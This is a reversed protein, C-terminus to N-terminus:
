SNVIPGRGDSAFETGVGRYGIFRCSADFVPEGSVRFHQLKSDVSTRSLVFDLFPQRKAILELMAKLQVANWGASEVFPEAGPPIDKTAGLMGSVPLTTEMLRGSGDQEWHWDSALQTLQRYRAESEILAATRERVTQELIENYRALEKYLLRVELMNRIRTKVELLDFPKSIFDRVGAQLARLKHAPQATLVIVPLYGDTAVADLREMVEFGDMGPMQLDLLILDFPSDGHLIGVDKPQTTSVVDTYGAEALMRELLQVNAPEDDVVLIRAQRVDPTNLM